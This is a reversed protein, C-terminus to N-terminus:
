NEAKDKIAEITLVFQQLVGNLTGVFQQLPATIMGIAQAILQDRSPLKAIREVDADVYLTGEVHIARIEPKENTKGFDYLIKAMQGVDEGGFAIATPGVLHENLDGRGAETAALRLLTNKAVLYKIKADRLQKRLDTMKEVTLGVYDTVAVSPAGKFLESLEEVQKIKEQNPM